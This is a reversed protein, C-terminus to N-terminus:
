MDTVADVRWSNLPQNFLKAQHFMYDMKTVADVQWSDIDPNCTDLYAVLYTSTDTVRSTNWSAPPAM